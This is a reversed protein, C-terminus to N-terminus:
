VTISRLGHLTEEWRAIYPVIRSEWLEEFKDSYELVVDVAGSTISNAAMKALPRLFPNGALMGDALNLVVTKVQEIVQSRAAADEDAKLIVAVVDFLERAIQHMELPTVVGDERAENWKDLFEQLEKQLSM